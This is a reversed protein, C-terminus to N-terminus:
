GPEPPRGPGGFLRGELLLDLVSGDGSTIWVVSARGGSRLVRQIVGACCLTEDDPHPAVVLLSTDSGIPPLAESSAPATAAPEAPSTSPTLPAAAAPWAGRAAACLGLALMALSALKASKRADRGARSERSRRRPPTSEQM